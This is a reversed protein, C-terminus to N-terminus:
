TLNAQFFVESNHPIFDSNCFIFKPGTKNVAGMWVCVCRSCVGSATPRVNNHQLAPSLQPDPAKSLPVETTTNFTSLASSMWERWWCNRGTQSEFECGKSKSDSERLMLGRSEGKKFICEYSNGKWICFTHDSLILIFWAVHNVLEQARWIVPM